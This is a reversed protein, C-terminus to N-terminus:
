GNSLGGEIKINQTVKIWKTLDISEQKPVITQIVEFLYRISSYYNNNSTTPDDDDNLNVITADSVISIIGMEEPNNMDDIFDYLTFRGGNEIIIRNFVEDTLISTLISCMTNNDSVIDFQYMLRHGIGFVDVIGYEDDEYEGLANGLGVKYQETDVRRIIISPKSIDTLDRPYSPLVPINLKGLNYEQLVKPMTDTCLKILSMWMNYEIARIKKIM